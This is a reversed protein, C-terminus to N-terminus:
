SVIMKLKSYSLSTGNYGIYRATQGRIASASVTLDNICKALYPFDKNNHESM